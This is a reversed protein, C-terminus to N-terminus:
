PLPLPKRLAVTEQASNLTTQLRHPTHSRDDVGDRPCMWVIQGSIGCREAGKWAPALSAQVAARIKTPTIPLLQRHEIPRGTSPSPAPRPVRGGKIIDPLRNQGDLKRWKAQALMMLRFAMALGTKRSLCGKTRETRTPRHRLTTSAWSGIWHILEARFPCLGPSEIPNSTKIHKRHEAPFDPFTLLAHRDKVLRAVAKDWKVGCTEGFVDFAANAQANTEAQWGRPVTSRM